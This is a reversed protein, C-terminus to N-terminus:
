FRHDRQEPSGSTVTHLIDDQNTWTVPTGAKVELPVPKFQFLQITVIADPNGPRNQSPRSAASVSWLLSDSMSAALSAMLGVVALTALRRWCRPMSDGGKRACRNISQNGKM